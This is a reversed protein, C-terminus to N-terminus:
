IISYIISAVIYSCQLAHNLDDILIDGVYYKHMVKATESSCWHYTSINLKHM